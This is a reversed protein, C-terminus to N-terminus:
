EREEGPEDDGEHRAPRLALRDDDGHGARRSEVADEGVQEVQAKGPAEEESPCPAAMSTRLPSMCPKWTAVVGVASPMHMSPATSPVTMPTSGPRPGDAVMAISSGSVIFSSGVPAIIM